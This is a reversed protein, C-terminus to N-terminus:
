KKNIHFFYMAIYKKKILKNKKTYFLYKYNYSYITYYFTFMIFSIGEKNKLTFNLNVERLEAKTEEEVEHKIRVNFYLYDMIRNLSNHDIKNNPYNKGYIFKNSYKM